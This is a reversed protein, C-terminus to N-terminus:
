NLPYLNDDAGIAWNSSYIIASSNPCWNGDLGIFFATGDSDTLTFPKWYTQTTDLHPEITGATMDAICEYHHGDSPDIVLCGTYYDQADDYQFSWGKQAYFCLNALFYLAGNMDERSPAVGGAGLPLSTEPPFGDNQSLQGPTSQNLPINNRTGNEAIPVSLLTPNVAM